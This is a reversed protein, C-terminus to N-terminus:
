NAEAKEVYTLLDALDQPTLGAEIGEPMLSQGQNQMKRVNKRPIVYEKGFAQRLTVTTGTESVVLGIYSEDDKTEVVYNVFEPRVERNPDLINVLMKEKGTNKVTVLDPGLAYGEGALRHCSICREQYIKRGHIPDGKLTTASIFSDIVQQRSNSPPNALVKSALERVTQERHTLLFKSQTADLASSPIASAAIAHLLSVARESRALLAALAESRLRPTFNAWNGLLATGVQPDTFRSLSSLAALQLNQPQSLTLLSILTNGSDSFSTLGLLEICSIRAAESSHNDLACDGAKAFAEAVVPHQKPLTGGARQLGEGFAGLIGFKQERSPQKALFELVQAVEQPQNNAGILMALQRLFAKGSSTENAEKSLSFKEFLDIAGDALSSLIAAQTWSSNLDERAILALPEIKAPGKIEGLTLALQYRVGADPDHALQQLKSLLKMPAVHDVFFKESLKIAHERVTADADTLALLVQETSLASLGELAYLAHMRALPFKSNKVLEALPGLAGKDQREYLLRAATDRHWGNPHELTAVLEKTSAKGLQTKRPQKFGDPVIRYIRGRDNGSNLDLLKKISEPLSWPHEIVERYMDAVYLTGDPANAMQVPRFWLDTSAIFEVKQEDSRREAVLAVGDHRIKKRHILNSGCDAIFADGLDEKPWANGRYLAIGTASTFYGSARGGGEIPGPVEGAVRWKTRIVRWMEEPSIRYVEASPGDVAIDVLAPPMNYYPNRDGYRADYMFTQIHHSNSCVFRRGRDDFCMGYQGGGTEARLEMTKPDFYFDRGSLELPKADPKDGPVVRGGNSATQGHIHNDLGWVLSNVLAQVNLKDGKGAGFGTFVIKRVDAKGDNNTDKFYLIEPSAAVFIGGHYYTVGTPWPLDDAYITAKDFIGDNNTDELMRIRGLHPQVNRMESYDRMEVVFLRGNEDFAMAIPDVVLPESAVLELHFGKKIQFTKQTNTAEVPPVRPLDKPDLLPEGALALSVTILFGFCSLWVLSKM